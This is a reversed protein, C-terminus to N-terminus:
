GNISPNGKYVMWKKPVGGNMSDKIHSFSISFSKQQAQLHPAPVYQLFGPLHIKQRSIIISNKPSIWTHLNSYSLECETM